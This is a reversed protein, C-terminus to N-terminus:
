RVILTGQMGAQRHGAVSCFFTYTGPKLTLTLTKTGGQFTPTAGLIPGSAGQEITLNHASPSGNTFQIAM